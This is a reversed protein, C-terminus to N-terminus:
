FRRTKKMTWKTMEQRLNKGALMEECLSMSKYLENMTNRDARIRLRLGEALGVVAMGGRGGAYVFLDSEQEGLTRKELEFGLRIM